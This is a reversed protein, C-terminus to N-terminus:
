EARWNEIWLTSPYQHGTPEVGKLWAPFVFSDARMYLPLAPLEEAYIAQLRKWLAHRAKPDLELEIRDILQDVDANKFGTYNQGAFNNTASPVHTSALTTRPVNEPASVWAFMAMAAFRRQRVTEGFFVRAPENKLRVEIGAAKWQSQLVQQVLERMRNGATTMLEYQLAQGQANRRMGDAGKRWGAADLLEGARKPAHAHVRVQPDYAVDLPNVFSHAVPQKGAFLRQNLVERDLALLLAQRVRKDALAPNDLNLDIHEYILGPKYVVRYAKGHRKEFALAQDLTLGLEGAVYDIGGSLLNAELAATNEIARVVVRKFAPPTGWWHPNPVLAVHSGRSVEAIRYPGHYLGPSTPETDFRTKTKYQAPDQFAARELHAPLVDFGALDNYKFTVRDIHLVVTKPDLVDIKLIRRFSEFDGVGTQPHRGVEWTFVIDEATMPTGDGWKADPHLTVRIAIGPKGDPTTERKARGNEFSPIETCLLCVLKWDKDYAMIPRRAMALVYSKAVMADILPNLTSPFQTVGVVLQERAAALGCWLSAAAGLLFGLGLGLRRRRYPTTRRV